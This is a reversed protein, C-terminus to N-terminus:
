LLLFEAIKMNKFDVSLTLFNLSDNKSFNCSFNNRKSFLFLICIRNVNKSFFVCFKLVTSANILSYFVVALMFKDLVLTLYIIPFKM